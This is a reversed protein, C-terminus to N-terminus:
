GTVFTTRSVFGNIHYLTDRPSRAPPLRTKLCSHAFAEGPVHSALPWRGSPGSRLMRASPAAPCPSGCAPPASLFALTALAAGPGRRTPSFSARVQPRPTCTPGTPVQAPRARNWPM